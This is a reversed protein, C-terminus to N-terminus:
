GARPPLEMGRRTAKKPWTRLFSLVWRVFRLPLRLSHIPPRLIDQIVIVPSREISEAASATSGSDALRIANYWAVGRGLRIGYNTLLDGYREGLRDLWSIYPAYRHATADKIAEISSGLMDNMAHYDNIHDAPPMRDASVDGLALPLDHVIHVTMAFVLDELPSTRRDRMAAFAEQWAEGVQLKGDLARFYRAAFAEALQTVWVQDIGATPLDEAIRRTMLSYAHTFVCRSDRAHEFQRAAESLRQELSRLRAQCDSANEPRNATAM